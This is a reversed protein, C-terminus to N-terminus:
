KLAQESELHGQSMLLDRYVQMIFLTFICNVFPLTM